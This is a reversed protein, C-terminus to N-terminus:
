SFIKRLFGIRRILWAIFFTTPVAIAFVLFFKLMPNFTYDKIIISIGVLVPAHFVFVGFANDSLFQQFPSTINVKGKFMGTLALIFTVCFFSEWLAYWFAPWNMGGEIFMNGDMVGGYMIILLWAPIGLGLSIILWRVGERFSIQDFINAAYAMIGFGFMFIYASFFGFQLNYFNTGIPYVLRALFAVGTIMLILVMVNITSLKYTFRLRSKLFVKYIFVYIVSFILLAEVFWLPGTWSLFEFSKIGNLYWQIDVEPYVIKVVLPHILLVYILLPVGL